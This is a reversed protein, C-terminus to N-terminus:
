RHTRIYEAVLEDIHYKAKFQDFHWNADRLISENVSTCHRPSEEKFCPQSTVWDRVGGNRWSVFDVTGGRPRSYYHDIDRDGASDRVYIDLNEGYSGIPGNISMGSRYFYTLSSGRHYFPLNPWDTQHVAVYIVGDADQAAEVTIIPRGFNTRFGDNISSIVLIALVFGGVLTAVTRM